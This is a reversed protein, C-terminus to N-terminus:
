VTMPGEDGWVHEPITQSSDPIFRLARHRDGTFTAERTKLEHGHAPCSATQPEVKTSLDTKNACLM